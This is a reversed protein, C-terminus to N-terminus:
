ISFLACVGCVAGASFFLFSFYGAVYGVWDKRSRLRDEETLQDWTIENNRFRGVETRWNRFLHAFYHVRFSHVVAVALLGFGFFALPMAATKSPASPFASGIFGLVAIAGGSNILFLFQVAKDGAEKELHYLQSWRQNISNTFWEQLERLADKEEM